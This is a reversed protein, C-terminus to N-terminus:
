FPIRAQRPQAGRSAEHPPLLPKGSASLLSGSSDAYRKLYPVKLFITDALSRLTELRSRVASPPRGPYALALYLEIAKWVDSQIPHPPQM